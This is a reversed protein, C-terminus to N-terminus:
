RVNKFYTKNEEPTVQFYIKVHGELQNLEDVDENSVTVGTVIQKRGKGGGLGGIQVENIEVKRNVLESLTAIKKLLILIRGENFVGQSNKEVFQEVNYVEVDVGPPSAMTYVDVMFPDNMLADDIIVIKTAGILNNWKTIVQGHILRYDLRVLKVAKM